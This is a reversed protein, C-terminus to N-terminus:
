QCKYSFCKISRTSLWEDRAAEEEEEKQFFLLRNWLNYKIASTCCFGYNNISCSEEFPNDYEIEINKQDNELYDFAYGCHSLLCLLEIIDNDLNTLAEICTQLNNMLYNTDTKNIDVDMLVIYSLTNLLMKTMADIKDQENEKLMPIIASNVVNRVHPIYFEHNIGIGGLFANSYKLIISTNIVTMNNYCCWATLGDIDRRTTLQPCYPCKSESMKKLRHAFTSYKFIYSYMCYSM